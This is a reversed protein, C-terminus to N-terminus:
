LDGRGSECCAAEGDAANEPEIHVVVDVVNPGNKLLCERVRVAVNHSECVTLQGDVAVHLDVLLGYGIYRSRVLHVGRVGEAGSACKVIEEVVKKSPGTELLEKAAPALVTLAVHVIFAAVIIACINDVIRWEPFLMATGAGIVAPISGIADSRHHWAKAIMAPSKERRGVAVTWHYLIEKVVIIVAAAIVAIITPTETEPESFTVVAEWMIGVGVAFLALGIVITIFTEIRKHGYPHNEDAPRSWFPAAFLVAVDTIGDSITHLSDAVVAQSNGVIGAAFEGAGLVMNVAFGLWTIRMISRLGEKSTGSGALAALDHGHDHGHDHHFLGHKHEEHGRDEEKHGEECSHGHEHGHEAHSHEHDHECGHGKHDSDSM